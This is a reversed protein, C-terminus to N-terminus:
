WGVCAGYWKTSNKTDPRKTLSNTKAIRLSRRPAPSLRPSSRGAPRCSRGPPSRSRGAGCQGCRGSRCSRARWWCPPRFGSWSHAAPWRSASRHTRGDTLQPKTHVNSIFISACEDTERKQNSPLSKRNIYKLSDSRKVAKRQVDTNTEKWSPFNFLQVGFVHIFDLSNLLALCKLLLSPSLCSQLFHDCNHMTDHINIDDIKQIWRVENKM